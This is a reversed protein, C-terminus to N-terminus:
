DQAFRARLATLKEIALDIKELDPTGDLAHRVEAVAEKAANRAEQEAARAEWKARLEEIIPDGVTAFEYATRNWDNASGEKITTIEGERISWKKNDIVLRIEHPKAADKSKLVLRTKLVKVVEYELTSFKGLTTGWHVTPQFIRILTQGEELDGALMRETTGYTAFNATM